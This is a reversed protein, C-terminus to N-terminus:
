KKKTGPAADKFVKNDGEYAFKVTASKEVQSIALRSSDLPVDFAAQRELLRLDGVKVDFAFWRTLGTLAQRLTTTPITIRGDIWNFAGAKEDATAERTTGRDAFMTQNAAVNATAEGSKVQVSGETVTVFIASDGPYASVAFKTGTAIVHNRKAVLRFPLPMAETTPAVEFSAAGEIRIARIAKPFGDPVFIKSEPGIKVKSGDPLSLTGFQGPTTSVLPQISTNNVAALTADDAGFSNLYGSIVGTRFEVVAVAILLGFLVYMVIPPKKKGVARVHGAAEHRGAKDHAAHAASVSSAHLTKQIGEWTTAVTAEGTAHSSAAHKGGAFRGASARRSLARAAGHRIEDALAAKLQDHSSINARQNWLGVFASEVVKPALAPADTLQSKASALSADFESDLARKLAAEDTLISKTLPSPSATRADTSM